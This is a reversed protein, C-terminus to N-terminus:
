KVTKVIAVVLGVTLLAVGAGVAAPHFRLYKNESVSPFKNEPVLVPVTPIASPPAVPPVDTYNKAINALELEVNDNDVFNSMKGCKCGGSCNSKEDEQSALILSRYPTDIEALREFAKEGYKKTAIHLKAVMDDFNKPKPCGMEKLLAMVETPNQDAIYSEISLKKM